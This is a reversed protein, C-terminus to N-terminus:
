YSSNLLRELLFSWENVVYDISYNKVVVDRANKGASRRLKDDSMLRTLSQCWQEHSTSGFGVFDHKLVESNMGYDSVVVPVGCAMYLLMKYSCKGRSWESNDLPMIGVEMEQITQVENEPTWFIFDVDCDPIIKFDPKKNSIVRFKWGPNNKLLQALVPEIEYLFRFGGSTGSWGIIKKRNTEQTPVFRDVDVATPIISIPKGFRAFYNAIYSNGCVIHDVVSAIKNAAKGHRHLWIADDVDFIRPRKSFRELTPITSILERQFIVADFLYSQKIDVCRSLLERFIWLPRAFFNEPPYASVYAQRLDFNYKNKDFHEILHALRFRSSPTDKGQGFAMININNM